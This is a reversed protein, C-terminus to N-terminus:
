TTSGKPLPQYKTWDICTQGCGKACKWEGGQTPRANGCTRMIKQEPEADRWCADAKFCGRCRWDSEDRSIKQGNGKLVREVKTQLAAFAFDDFDVVESLYDSNNKNYAVFLCKRIKALGMMFQVQAYYSPHSYKVRREMCDKFKSDNMSKIEVLWSEGNIELLGDAHGIVHGGYATYTWQEGTLPDVEMVHLGAKKMDGIVISEIRHGDRFIRKLRPDPTTDPYGRLSFAIAATCTQGVGSAGIYARTKERRPEKRYAEDILERVDIM